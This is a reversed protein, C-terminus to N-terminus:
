QKCSTFKLTTQLNFHSDTTHREAHFAAFAYGKGKELGTTGAIDDLALSKSQSGHVGGLDIVLKRNIFIWLDDDGTFTVKEGGGYVFRAHLETTFHFNHNRGENGFGKEDIPFYADNSIVAVGDKEVLDLNVPIALNVDPTDRYWQAFSDASSITTGTGTFVPKGDSGLEANVLGKESAIKEEFDPHDAKFDRIVAHFRVGQLASDLSCTGDPDNEGACGALLALVLLYPSSRM